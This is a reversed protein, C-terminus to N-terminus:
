LRALLKGHIGGFGGNSLVLLVDGDRAAPAVREVIADAGGELWAPIGRISISEVLAGPDLREDEPVKGPDEVRSIVALDAGAVADALENQFVKRRTTNSRPEFIAWLRSGPFRQRMSAISLRIATPHHAFDDIVSVGNKVGRLEQRRGVGNFGDLAEQIQVDTLGAHRAAAAAMAANRINFEGDMPVTFVAEGLRFTGRGPAAENMIIRDTNNEGFGVSRVPAPSQATVELCNADDGNIIVLGGRPVVRLLRSFTLKVDDISKYIDVHDFEINNMVVVEPLYHLFKSRKDFFATDYEDGELVTWPSDTFRAGMGFNRPMGGILFGPERGAHEFMWALMSTTTTKGHTGCVVYNHKGILFFRRLAEPLSLYDMKRDLMAEVEPNGRSLANGVVVLTGEPPLNAPDYGDFLRIGTTRLFDSMPPYCQADSGTVQWGRRAMAAAVAGMATGCVGIFHIANAGNQM